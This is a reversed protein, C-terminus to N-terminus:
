GRCRQWAKGGRIQSIGGWFGLCRLDWGLFFIFFYYTRPACLGIGVLGGLLRCAVYIDVSAEGAAMWTISAGSGCEV